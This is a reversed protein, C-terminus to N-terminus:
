EYKKINKANNLVIDIEWNNKPIRKVYSMLNDPIYEIYCFGSEFAAHKSIKYKGLFEITIDRLNNIDIDFLIMQMPFRLIGPNYSKFIDNPDKCPGIMSKAIESLEDVDDVYLDYSLVFNKFKENLVLDGYLKAIVIKLINDSYGDYNNISKFISGNNSKLWNKFTGDRYLEVLKDINVAM